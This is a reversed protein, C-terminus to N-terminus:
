IKPNWVVKAMVTEIESPVSTLGVDNFIDNLDDRDKIGFAKSMRGFEDASTQKLIKVAMEKNEKDGDAELAKMLQMRSEYSLAKIQADTMTKVTDRAIDDCHDSWLVWGAKQPSLLEASKKTDGSFMAIATLKGQLGADGIGAWNSKQDYLAYLESKAQAPLNKALWVLDNSSSSKLAATVLAKEDDSIQEGKKGTVENSLFQLIKQANPTLETIRKDIDKKMQEPLNPTKKLEELGEVSDKVAEFKAKFESSGELEKIRADVTAKLETPLKPDAQLKKLEDINDKNQEFKTKYELLLAEKEKASLQDQKGKIDELKKTILGQLSDVADGMQPNSEKLAKLEESIVQLEEPKDTGDIQATYTAILQEKQKQLSSTDLLSLKNDIYQLFRNTMDPYAEQFKEVEGRLAKLNEPNDGAENLKGLVKNYFEFAGQQQYVRAKTDISQSLETHRANTKMEPFVQELNNLFTKIKVCQEYSGESINKGVFEQFKLFTEPGYRTDPKAGILKQLDKVSKLPPSVNFTTNFDAMVSQNWKQEDAGTFVPVKGTANPFVGKFPDVTTPEYKTWPRIQLPTFVDVKPPEGLDFNGTVPQKAEVKAAVVPQETVVKDTAAKVVPAEKKEPIVKKEEAVKPTEDIFDYVGAGQYAKGNLNGTINVTLKDSDLKFTAKGDVKGDGDYDFDVTAAKDTKLGVKELEQKSIKGDNNIMQNVQNFTISM